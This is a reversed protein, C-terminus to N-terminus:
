IGGVSFMKTGEFIGKNRLYNRVKVCYLPDDDYDM